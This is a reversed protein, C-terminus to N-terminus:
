PSPSKGLATRVLHDDGFCHDAMKLLPEFVGPWGVVVRGGYDIMEQANQDEVM